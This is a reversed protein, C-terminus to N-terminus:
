EGDKLPQTGQTGFETTTGETVGPKGHDPM